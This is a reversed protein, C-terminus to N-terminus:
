TARLREDLHNRIDSALEVLKKLKPGLGPSGPPERMALESQLVLGTLSGKMESELQILASKRAIAQEGELRRMASKVERALRAGGTLAFNIQLPMAAGASAWLQDAWEPDEEVLHEEVVVVAFDGRRVGALGARRTAAVEVRVGLRDTLMSVLSDSAEMGTIILVSRDNM